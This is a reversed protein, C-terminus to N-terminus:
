AAALLGAAAALAFLLPWWREGTFPRMAQAWGIPSLWALGSGGADGAARLLFALGLAAGALGYAPRGNETV